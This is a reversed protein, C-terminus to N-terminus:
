KSIPIVTITVQMMARAATRTRPVTNPDNQRRLNGGRQCIAAADISNAHRQAPGIRIAATAPTWECHSRDERAWRTSSHVSLMPMRIQLLLRLRAHINSKYAAGQNDACQRCNCHRLIQRHGLRIVWPRRCWLTCCRIHIHGRVLMAVPTMATSPMRVIAAASNTGMRRFFRCRRRGSSGGTPENGALRAAAAHRAATLPLPPAQTGCTDNSRRPSKVKLAGQTQVGSGM